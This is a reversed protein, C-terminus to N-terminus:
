AHPYSFGNADMFVLLQWPRPPHMTGQGKQGVSLCAHCRPEIPADWSGNTKTFFIRGILLLGVNTQNSWFFSRCSVMTKMQSLYLGDHKLQLRCLNSWIKGAKEWRHLQKPPWFEVVVCERFISTQKQMLCPLTKKATTRWSWRPKLSTEVVYIYLYLYLCLYLYICM